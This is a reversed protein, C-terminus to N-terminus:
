RKQTLVNRFGPLQAPTLSSLHTGLLLLKRLFLLFRISENKSSTAHKPSSSASFSLKSMGEMINQYKNLLWNLLLGM